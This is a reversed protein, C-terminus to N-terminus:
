RHTCGMSPMVVLGGFGRLPSMEQERDQLGICGLDGYFATLIEWEAVVFCNEIRILVLGFEV